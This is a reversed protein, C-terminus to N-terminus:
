KPAALGASFESMSLFSNKDTDLEDFRASIAPLSAAEAKSLRGDGDVDAKKFAAAADAPAAPQGVAPGSLALAAAAAFAAILPASAIAHRHVFTRMPFVGSTSLLGM